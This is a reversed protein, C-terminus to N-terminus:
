NNSNALKQLHLKELQESLEGNMKGVVAEADMMTLHLVMVIVDLIASLKEQESDYINSRCIYEILDKIIIIKPTHWESFRRIFIEPINAKISESEYERVINTICNIYDHVSLSKNTGALETLTHFNKQVAILKIRLFKRIMKTRLLDTPICIKAISVDIMYQIDSFFPHEKINGKKSKHTKKDLRHKVFLVLIPSLIATIVAIIISEM